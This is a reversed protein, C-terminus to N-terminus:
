SISLVSVEHSVGVYEAMADQAPATISSGLSAALALMSLLFTVWSKYITSWNRPNDLEGEEWVVINPDERAVGEEEKRPQSIDEDEPPFPSDELKEENLSAEGNSDPAFNNGSESPKMSLDEQFHDTSSM